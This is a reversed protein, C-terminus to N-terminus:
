EGDEDLGHPEFDGTMHDCTPCQLGVPARAVAVVAAAAAEWAEQIEPKQQGYTPLPAGSILSKGGCKAFYGEYAVQGIKPRASPPAPPTVPAMEGAGAQHTHMTQERVRRRIRDKLVVMADHILAIAHLNEDCAFKSAQCCELFDRLMALISLTTAGNWGQRPDGSQLNMGSIADEPTGTTFDYAHPVGHQDGDGALVRLEAVDPLEPILHTTVERM